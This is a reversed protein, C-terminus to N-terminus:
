VHFFDVLKNQASALDALNTADAAMEEAEASNNQTLDSINTISSMIERMASKQEDISFKIEESREGVIKVESIVEANTIKQNNMDTKINKMMDSISNVGNIVHTITDFTENVNNIGRNIEDESTKILTGIDKLSQATQDALKSIEDAVVAFGRGADGARAAEIAANLSLLNIKESIDHIINIINTMEKSSKNINIMSESMYKLSQERSRAESYMSESLTSSEEVKLDMSLIIDSLMEIKTILSTVSEYQETSGQAIININAQIEEISATIEETSAAQGQANESFTNTSSSLHDSSESLQISTDKVKLVVNRIKLIFQNFLRALEGIEDSTRVELTKTLDGEGESIDKLIAITKKIPNVIVRTIFLSIFTTMVISAIIFLVTISIFVGLSNKARNGQSTSLENQMTMIKKLNESLINYQDDCMGMMITGTNMDYAATTLAEVAKDKYEVANKLSDQYLTKEEDTLLNSNLLTNIKAIVSDLAIWQEDSLKTIQQQDFNSTMLNLIKYINAHVATTSTSIEASQQYINFRVNLISNLTSRQSILGTFFMLGMFSIIIIAALPTLLMKKNM